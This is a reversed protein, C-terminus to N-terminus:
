KPNRNLRVDLWQEIRSLFAEIAEQVRRIPEVIYKQYLERVRRGFQKVFETIITVVYVVFKAGIRVVNWLDGLIHKIASFIDGLIRFLGLALAIFILAFAAVLALFSWNTIASIVYALVLYALIYLWYEGTAHRLRKNRVYRAVAVRILGGILLIFLPWRTPKFLSKTELHLITFDGISVTKEPLHTLIFRQADFLFSGLTQGYRSFFRPIADEAIGVSAGLRLDSLWAAIPQTYYFLLLLIIVIVAVIEGWSSHTLPLIFLAAIVLFLLAALLWTFVPTTTETSVLKNTPQSQACGLVLITWLILTLMLLFRSKM